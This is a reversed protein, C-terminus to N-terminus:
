IDGDAFRHLDEELDRVYVMDADEDLRFVGREKLFLFADRLSECETRGARRDSYEEALRM